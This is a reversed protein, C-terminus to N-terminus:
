GDYYNIFIKQVFNKFDIWNNIKTNDDSIILFELLEEESKIKGPDLILNSVMIKDKTLNYNIDFYINSIEKRNKKNIQFLRYFQNKSLINFIFNGNFILDGKINEINSNVLSLNGVDGSFLTNDFNIIGNNFNILIKSSTFLKNKILKNIKLDLDASLNKNYLQELMFLNIVLSNEFINKKFNLKELDFNMSLYFPILDIKGNYTIKNNKIKSNENSQIEVLNKRIDINSGIEINRFNLFNKISIFENNKKSTLNEIKLNLRKLKLSTSNIKTIFNKNWKLSYPITFFEGKSILLNKSNKDNYILKLNSIPFISIVNKNDDIYFFKSNIITLKKKSFKKDLFEKIYILNEKDIIFNSNNLSVSNIEIINKKLFNKQKIFIKLRKIQGLEKPSVFDNSYFKVNEIIFHPKPLINYKIDPTLSLNINYEKNIIKNLKTQLPGKDYLSPISLFFLYLFLITILFILYRNFSSINNYKHNIVTIFESIKNFYHVFFNNIKAVKRFM